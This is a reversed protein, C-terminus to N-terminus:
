PNTAMLQDLYGKIMDRFFNLEEDMSVEQEESMLEGRAAMKQLFSAITNYIMALQTQESPPMDEQYGVGGWNLTHIKEKYWAALKEDPYGSGYLHDFMGLFRYENRLVDFKDIMALINEKRFESQDPNVSINCTEVVKTLMRFAIEFAIPDRDPFYKYLSVRSIDAEAAIDKMNTKDLGKELFLREAADLINNRQGELNKNNQRVFESISVNNGRM